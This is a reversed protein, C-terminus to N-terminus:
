ALADASRLTGKTVSRCCSFIFNNGEALDNAISGSPPTVEGGVVREHVYGLDGLLEFIEATEYGYRETWRSEIEVLIVPRHRTLSATGGTLVM